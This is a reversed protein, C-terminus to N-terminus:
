TPQNQIIVEKSTWSGGGSQYRVQWETGNYIELTSVSFLNLFRQKRTVRARGEVWADIMQVFKDKVDPFPFEDTWFHGVSFSLEDYNQLYISIPRSLKSQIPFSWFLEVAQTKDDVYILDHRKAFASFLEAAEPTYDRRGM